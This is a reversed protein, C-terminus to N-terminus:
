HLSPKMLDHTQSGSRYMGYPTPTTRSHLLALTSSMLLREIRGLGMPVGTKIAYQVVIRYSDM